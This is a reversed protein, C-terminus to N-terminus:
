RLVVRGATRELLRSNLGDKARGAQREASTLKALAHALADDVGHRGVGRASSVTVAVVFRETPTDNSPKSNHTTKNGECEQGQCISPEALSTGAFRTRARSTSAAPNGDIPRFDAVEHGIGVLPYPSPQFVRQASM